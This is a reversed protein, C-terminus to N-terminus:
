VGRSGSPGASRAEAGADGQALDALREPDDQGAVLATLISHGTKGTIDTVVSSLKLNADQM